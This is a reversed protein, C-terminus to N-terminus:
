LRTTKSEIRGPIFKHLCPHLNPYLCLVSYTRHYLFGGGLAPALEGWKVGVAQITKIWEIQCKILM